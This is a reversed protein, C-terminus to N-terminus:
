GETLSIILRPIKGGGKKNKLDIEADKL